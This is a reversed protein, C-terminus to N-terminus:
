ENELFPTTFMEPGQIYRSVNITGESEITNADFYANIYEELVIRVQYLKDNDDDPIDRFGLSIESYSIDRFNEGPSRNELSGM